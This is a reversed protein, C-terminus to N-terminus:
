PMGPSLATQWLLERRGTLATCRPCVWEVSFHLRWGGRHTKGRGRVTPPYRDMTLRAAAGATSVPSPLSLELEDEPVGVDHRHARLVRRRTVGNADALRVAYSTLPEGPRPAPRVPWAVPTM